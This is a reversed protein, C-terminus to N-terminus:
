HARFVMKWSILGIKKPGWVKTLLGGLGYGAGVLLRKSRAMLEFAVPAVTM